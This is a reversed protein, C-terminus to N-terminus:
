NKTLILISDDTATDANSNPVNVVSMTLGLREGLRRLNDRGLVRFTGISPDLQAGPTYARKTNGKWGWQVGSETTLLMGHRKLKSAFFEMMQGFHKECCTVSKLLPDVIIDFESQIRAYARPDYKNLLMAEANEVGAFKKEFLEIEPLSITIGVYQALDAAFEAPLSGNGVGVHLLRKGVYRRPEAKLFAMIALEAESTPQSEFSTITHDPTLDFPGGCDALLGDPQM